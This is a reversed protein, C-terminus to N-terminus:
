KTTTIPLDKHKNNYEFQKFCMNYVNKPLVKAKELVNNELGYNFKDKPVTRNINKPISLFYYNSVDQSCYVLLEGVYTGHLVGYVEYKKPEHLNKPKFLNQIKLKM